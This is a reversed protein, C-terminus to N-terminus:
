SNESFKWDKQQHGSAEFQESGMGFHLKQNHTRTLKKTRARTVELTFLKVSIEGIKAHLIQVM